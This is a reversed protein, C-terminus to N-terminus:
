VVKFLRAVGMGGYRTAGVYKAGHRKGEALPHAVMAVDHTKKLSDRFTKSSGMRAAVIVKEQSM